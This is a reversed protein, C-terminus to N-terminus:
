QTEDEIGHSTIEYTSGRRGWYLVANEIIGDEWKKCDENYRELVRCFHNDKIKVILASGGKPPNAPWIELIEGM